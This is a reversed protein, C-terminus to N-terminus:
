HTIRVGLLWADMALAKIADLLGDAVPVAAVNVSARM